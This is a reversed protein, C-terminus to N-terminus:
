SPRRFLYVLAEVLTATTVAMAAVFRERPEFPVGFAWMVLSTEIAFIIGVNFMRWLLTAQQRM